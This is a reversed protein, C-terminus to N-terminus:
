KLLPAEHDDRPLLADLAAFEKNSEAVERAYAEPDTYPGVTLTRDLEVTPPRPRGFLHRLADLM